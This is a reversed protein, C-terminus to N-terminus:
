VLGVESWADLEEVVSSHIRKIVGTQYTWRGCSASRKMGFHQLMHQCGKCLAMRKPDALHDCDELGGLCGGLLRWVTQAHVVQEVAAATVELCVVGGLGLERNRM